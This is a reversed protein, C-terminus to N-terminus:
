SGSSAFRVYLGVNQRELFGSIRQFETLLRTTERELEEDGECIDAVNIPEGSNDGELVKEVLQKIQHLRKPTM